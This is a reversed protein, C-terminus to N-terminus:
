RSRAGEGLQREWTEQATARAEAISGAQWEIQFFRGSRNADLHDPRGLWVVQSLLWSAFLVFGREAFGTLISDLVGARLQLLMQYVELM